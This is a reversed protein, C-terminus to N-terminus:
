YCIKLCLPLFLACLTPLHRARHGPRNSAVNAHHSSFRIDTVSFCFGVLFFLFGVFLAFVLWFWVVLYCSTVLRLSECTRGDPSCGLQGPNPLRSVPLKCSSPQWAWTRRVLISAFSGCGSSASMWIAFSASFLILPLRWVRDSVTVCCSLTTWIFKMIAAFSLLSCPLVVLEPVSLGAYSRDDRGRKM